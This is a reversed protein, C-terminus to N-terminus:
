CAAKDQGGACSDSDCASTGCAMDSGCGATEKRSDNVYFGPGKFVIGVNKSILRKVPSGCGPCHEMAPETIRQEKEFIGCKGCKYEYTLL